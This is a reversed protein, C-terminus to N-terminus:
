PRTEAAEVRVMRGAGPGSFAVLAEALVGCLLCSACVAALIGCTAPLVAGGRALSGLGAALSGIAFPAGLLGFYRLPRERFRVLLALSLLDLAVRLARALGYKSRGAQRPRHHVETEALVAGVPVTLLAIFRHMEAYLDLREIVERRYVKLGCGHDRIPTHFLARVLRNAIRSPLTRVLWGDRRERRWGSVVDADQLLELLKPLDAPDNQLDGDLTAVVAGRARDFGAQLAATQGARRCLAVVVLEPVLEAVARLEDLTGDGSGDDVCVIECPIGLPSLARSLQEILPRVNDREDFLPVVVSLSQFAHSGASSPTPVVSGKDTPVPRPRLPFSWPSASEGM